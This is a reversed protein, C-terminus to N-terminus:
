EAGSGIWDIFLSTAGGSAPMKGDLVKYTYVLDAGDVLPNTITVVVLTQEARGPEYVSLTANPSGGRFQGRGEKWTKLYDAMKLHGAIRKPRDSFYLTQQSVKVLRFSSKAPDVKLDEASHGVMLQADSSTTSSTACAAMPLVAAAIVLCIRILSRSFESVPTMPTEDEGKEASGVAPLERHATPRRRM